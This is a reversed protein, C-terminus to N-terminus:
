HGMDDLSLAAYGIHWGNRKSVIKNSKQELGHLDIRRPNRKVEGIVIERAAENVAILDIENSGYKEWYNTVINYLGTERYMQRFYRELIWGSFTQTYIDVRSIFLPFSVFIKSRFYQFLSTM